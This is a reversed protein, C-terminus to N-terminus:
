EQFQDIIKQLEAPLPAVFEKEEGSGPLRFRLTHAHLFHRKIPLRQRRFGYLTDGVIPHKFWAMHVRIQHTRGTHLIARILTFNAAGSGTQGSYFGLVKYDTVAERGPSVGTIADVPLVAQMKRHTAHRGLPANIRGNAPQVHGEVLALYEKHVTRAKFQAQLNRHAADNKAVVILGSTEKDLRHVIGPRREGGVGEIEPCHHLIANVLTGDAHGPAPHVVMGAPKNVVLLDNDEFLITLEIAQAVMSSEAVDPVTVQVRQGVELALKPKVAEGDVTVAGEKIWRQVENRSRGPLADTLWRDLREGANETTVVFENSM